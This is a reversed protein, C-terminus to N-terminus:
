DGGFEFDTERLIVSVLVDNADHVIVRHRRVVSVYDDGEPDSVRLFM